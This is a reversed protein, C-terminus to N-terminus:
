EPTTVSYRLNEDLKQDTTKRKAGGLRLKVM